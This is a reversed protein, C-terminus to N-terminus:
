GHGQSINEAGITKRAKLFISPTRTSILGRPRWIMILVMALGFVLMRYEAM